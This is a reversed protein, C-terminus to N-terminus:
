RELAQKYQTLVFQNKEETQAQQLAKATPEDLLRALAQVSVLRVFPEKHRVL